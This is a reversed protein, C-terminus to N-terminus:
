KIKIPDKEQHFLAFCRSYLFMNCITCCLLQSQIQRRTTYYHLICCKTNKNEAPKCLYRLSKVLKINLMGIDPNMTNDIICIYKMFLCIYSEISFESTPSDIVIVENEARNLYHFRGKPDLLAISGIKYFEYYLIIKSPTLQVYQHASQYFIYINVILDGLSQFFLFWLQKM